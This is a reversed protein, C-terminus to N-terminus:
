EEVEILSGAALLDEVRAEITERSGEGHAVALAVLQARTRPQYALMIMRGAADCCGRVGPASKIIVSM